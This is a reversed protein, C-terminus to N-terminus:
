VAAGQRAAVALAVVNAMTPETELRAIRERLADAASAGIVPRALSDFKSQLRTLQLGLDAAPTELNVSTRLETGSTTTITVDTGAGGGNERAAVAVRNRLDVLDSRRVAADTFAQESTDDGAMALAATFRLSFKGELATAPEQINCMALN